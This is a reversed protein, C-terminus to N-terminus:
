LFSTRMSSQGQEPWHLVPQLFPSIEEMANLASLVVTFVENPEITCDGNIVVTVTATTQGPTLTITGSNAVYDSGATATGNATAFNFIVNADSIASMNINFVLNQTGADGEVISPSTITIVGSDDNTITGTGTGNQIAGNVPNSLTMIVTEDLEVKLDGNVVM